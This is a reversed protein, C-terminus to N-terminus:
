ARVASRSAVAYGTKRLKSAWGAPDRTGYKERLVSTPFEPTGDATRANWDCLFDLRRAAEEERRCGVRRSM